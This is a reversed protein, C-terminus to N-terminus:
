EKEAAEKEEEQRKKQRERKTRATEARHDEIQAELNAIEAEARAREIQKALKSAEVERRAQDLEQTKKQVKLERDATEQPITMETLIAFEERRLELDRKSRELRRRGRELVIEKTQDAFDDAAYMMELQRLEEEAETARDQAKTLELKAREIRNPASRETFTRFRQQELNLEREANALAAANKEAAHTKGLRAGLLREGAVHLDRELKALTRADKADDEAQRLKEEKEDQQDSSEDAEDPQTAPKESPEETATAAPAQSVITPEAQRTTNGCGALV